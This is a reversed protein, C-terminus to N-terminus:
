HSSNLRTSKRDKDAPLGPTPTFDIPQTGAGGEPPVPSGIFGVRSASGHVHPAMVLSPGAIWLEVNLSEDGPFHCGSADPKRHFTVKAPNVQGADASDPGSVPGTLEIDPSLWWIQNAHHVGGDGPIAEMFICTDAALGPDNPM